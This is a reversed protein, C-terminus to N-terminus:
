STASPAPTAAPSAPAAPAPLVGSGGVPVKQLQALLAPDQADLWDVLERFSVM